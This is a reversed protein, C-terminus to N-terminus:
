IKLDFACIYLRLVRLICVRVFRARVGFFVRAHTRAHTHINASEFSAYFFFSFRYFHHSAHLVDDERRHLLLSFAVFMMM